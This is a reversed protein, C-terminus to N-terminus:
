PWDKGIVILYDTEFLFTGDDRVARGVGFADVIQDAYAKQDADKYVVLTTPYDFSDANGTDIRASAYGMQELIGAAAACVGDTGSGNRVRLTDASRVKYKRAMENGGQDGTYSMITGTNPDIVDDDTPSLGAGVREMLAKIDDKDYLEYWGGNIYSSTTPVAGTYIDTSADLGIMSQAIGVIESVSLDTKVYEAFTSVTNALTVPDSRLLKSAISSLVLRQNAARYSDGDGYDDYAHRSRCLILAQEGSLTQLGQDVHGGARRDDITMPVDVEVGGLGDVIASFGDFNIEAYHAIPVGMLESVTKVALAPGGFAHAANIKQVGHGDLDDIKIDRPISLLTVKKDRPDVRALMMSDSRFNDGAYEASNERDLSGDIGLLLVYFPDSATDTPVLAQLLSNDIGQGLKADVNYLYAFAAGFGGLVLVLVTALMGVLVKKRKRRKRTQAYAPAGFDVADRAYSAHAGVGDVRSADAVSQEGQPLRRQATSVGQAYRANRSAAQKALRPNGQRHAM